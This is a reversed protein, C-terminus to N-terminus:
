KPTASVSTSVAATPTPTGASTPYAEGAVRYHLTQQQGALNIWLVQGDAPMEIAVKVVTTAEGYKPTVTISTAAETQGAANTMWVRLVFSKEGTAHSVITVPVSLLIGNVTPTASFYMETYPTPLRTFSQSLITRVSPLTGIFALVGVLVAAVVAGILMRRRKAPVRRRGGHGASRRGGRTRVPEPRSSDQEDLEAADLETLGADGHDPFV